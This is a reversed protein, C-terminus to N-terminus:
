FLVSSPKPNLKLHDEILTEYKVTLYQKRNDDIITAAAKLKSRYYVLKGYWRVYDKNKDVWAKRQDKIRAQREDVSFKKGRAM